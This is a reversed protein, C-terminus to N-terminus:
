YIYNGTLSFIENLEKNSLKGIWNEGTSVTMNALEKKNQIMEDIREEFTGKTIFRHVIVNRHQGIRYARDTAQSEVAPNWWLDYHIVHTAATLNLGTGAAKLSLILVRDSRNNQFREVIENRQKISCGGHYFLPSTNLNQEIFLQLLSGMEKFQTFILVKEGSDVISRVLDLLMVTKGSINPDSNGDKIFQTPHNCIQKLALIMQLVLGQRKFLQANDTDDIQTIADMAKNLTEEYLTAQQPTLQAMDNQEIKDPLDNIISKDTKLRRLTFPATVKRFLEAVSLDGNKHIPNAFQEAFQKENGLYGKNVFDMISWFENLRNEVPTGSMAIHVGAKVAKVAKSQHTNSNKINQAEDIVMMAWKHKKIDNVDSRMVGYSTLLVDHDFNALDRTAGHYVYASLSPAFKEFESMWNSLLGTPVVILVREKKLEGENKLKLILTIVQLTKGLGMDDAIISGFGLAMNHYMWSFGREQYPRLTAHLDAPLAIEPLSTLQNILQRVEDTITIPVSNLTGSLSSQLMQSPSLQKKAEFSKRLREIDEQGVYVYEGKFKILGRANEMMLFFDEPSVMNDGIAVQWNFDLLKDLRLLSNGRNATKASLKISPMPRALEMLAKPLVVRMGLMQLTPIADIMITTFSNLSFHMPSRGLNDIYKELEPILTVLAALKQFIYYKKKALAPITSVTDLDVLKTVNDQNSSIKVRMEFGNKVEDVMFTPVLEDASILFRDLWSKIAGTTESQGVKNFVPLNHGFFLQSVDEHLLDKRNAEQVIETMMLTVLWKAPAKIKSRSKNFLATLIDHPMIEELSSIVKRVRADLLAPTWVINYHDKYGKYLLPITAGNALLHIACMMAQKLTAISPQYDDIFDMKIEDLPEFLLSIKFLNTPKLKNNIDSIVIRPMLNKDIVIKIDSYHGIKIDSATIITEKNKEKLVNRCTKSTHKIAKEYVARFDGHQYFPPEPSLLRVLSTGIDTLHSFDVSKKTPAQKETKINKKKPKGKIEKEEEKEENIEILEFCEPVDMMLEQEITIGRKKLEALLNMNHMEFVLFPNNDIEHSVMYIVAALHKCPVAWDPCSCNLGLDKWKQPFINLGIKKAISLITPSLERNLLMSVVTPHQLLETMLNNIENKTFQQVQITVNYPKILRGQVKASMINGKIKIDRVMGNRAYSKGRPLRNSYDIQDLARLWKNGWWTQGFKYAM